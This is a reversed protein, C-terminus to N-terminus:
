RIPAGSRLVNGRMLSLLGAKAMNGEFRQSRQALAGLGNETRRLIELKGKRATLEIQQLRAGNRGAYRGGTAKRGQLPACEVVNELVVWRRGDGEILPRDNLAIFLQMGHASVKPNAKRMRAFDDAHVVVTDKTNM